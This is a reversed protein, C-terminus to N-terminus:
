PRPSRAAPSESAPEVLALGDSLSLVTSTLDRRSQLLRNLQDLSQASTDHGPNVVQGRWLVNDFM